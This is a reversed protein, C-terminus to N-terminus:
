LQEFAESAEQIKVDIGSLFSKRALDVLETRESPDFGLATPMRYNKMEFDSLTSLMERKLDALSQIRHRLQNAQELKIENM